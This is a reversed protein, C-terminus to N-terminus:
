KGFILNIIFSFIGEDIVTPICWSTDTEIRHKSKKTKDKKITFFRCIFIIDFVIMVLIGYATM